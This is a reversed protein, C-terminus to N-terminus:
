NNVIKELVSYVKYFSNRTEESLNKMNLFAHPCGNDIIILEHERNHKRLLRAMEINDDLFPDTCAKFLKVFFFSLFDDESVFFFLKCNYM